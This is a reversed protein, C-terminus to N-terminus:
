AVPETPEEESKIILGKAVGEDFLKRAETSLAYPNCPIAVFSIELLEAKEIIKYDEQNRQRVIFGVSVANIMGERYMDKVLIALPNTQSFVGKLRKVGDATYFKTGRGIVSEIEYEHNALVVPNKEWNKTDWGDVLITEGQRDIDESTAVVDFEREKDASAKIEVGDIAKLLKDALEQTYLM